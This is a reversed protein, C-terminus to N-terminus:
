RRRDGAPMGRRALAELEPLVEAPAPMAAIEDRLRRAATAFALDGLV